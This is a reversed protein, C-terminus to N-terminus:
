NIERSSIYHALAMNSIKLTEIERELKRIYHYHLEENKARECDLMREIASIEENYNHVLEPRALDRIYDILTKERVCNEM